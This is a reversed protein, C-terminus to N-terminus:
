GGADVFCHVHQAGPAALHRQGAADAQQQVGLLQDGGRLLMEGRLGGLDDATVALAGVAGDQAFAHSGQDQLGQGVGFAVAVVDVADNAAGRDAVRAYAVAERHRIRLLLRYGDFLRQIVGPQVGPGDGVDFTVTGARGQAIRDFDLRQGLGEALVRIRHLDAGDARDFAVDGM